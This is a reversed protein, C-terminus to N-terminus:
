DEYVLSWGKRRLYDVRGLLKLGLSNKAAKIIKEARFVRAFRSLIQLDKIEDHKKM